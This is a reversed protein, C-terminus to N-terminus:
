GIPERLPGESIMFKQSSNIVNQTTAPQNRNQFELLCEELTEMIYRKVIPCYYVLAEAVGDGNLDLANDPDSLEQQHKTREQEIEQGMQEPALDPSQQPATPQVAQAAAPGVQQPTAQGAQLQTAQLQQNAQALPLDEQREIDAMSRARDMKFKQFNARAVRMEPTDPEAPQVPRSALQQVTQDLQDQMGTLDSPFKPEAEKARQAKSKFLGGIKKKLFNSAAHLMGFKPYMVGPTVGRIHAANYTRYYNDFVDPLLQQGTHYRNYLNSAQMIKPLVRALDNRQQPNLYNLNIGGVLNNGTNPHQYAGLLLIKPTPDHKYNDYNFGWMPAEGAECIPEFFLSELLTATRATALKM